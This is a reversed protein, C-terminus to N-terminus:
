KSVAILGVVYMMQHDFLSSVPNYGKFNPVFFTMACFLFLSPILSYRLITGAMVRGSGNRRKNKAGSDDQFGELGGTNLELDSSVRRNSLTNM